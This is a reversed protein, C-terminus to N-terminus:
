LEDYLDRWKPNRQEILRIKWSRNWKKLQGERQIAGLISDGQEYYVLKNVNYKETFGPLVKNKHEWMRKRLDSTVEVYLTGNRESALIYVCPSKM